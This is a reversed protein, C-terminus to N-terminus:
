KTISFLTADTLSERAGELEETVGEEEIGKEGREKREGEDEDNKKRMMM